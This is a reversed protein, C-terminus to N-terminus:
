LDVSRGPGAQIEYVHSGTSDDDADVAWEADAATNGAGSSAEHECYNEMHLKCHRLSGRQQSALPPTHSCM